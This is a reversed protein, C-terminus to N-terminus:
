SVKKILRPLENADLGINKGQEVLEDASRNQHLAEGAAWLLYSRKGTGCHAVIPAPKNKLAQYFADVDARSISDLSVPIHVYAMGNKEAASRMEDASPQDAAESDPRNNIVTKYGQEAFTALDEPQPQGGVSLQSPIVTKLELM